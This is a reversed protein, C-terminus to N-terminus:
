VLPKSLDTVNQTEGNILMNLWKLANNIARFLSTQKLPEGGPAPILVQRSGEIRKLDLKM